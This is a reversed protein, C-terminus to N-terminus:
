YAAGISDLSTSHQLIKFQTILDEFVSDSFRHWLSDRDSGRTICKMTFEVTRELNLRLQHRFGAPCRSLLELCRCILHNWKEPFILFKFSVECQAIENDHHPFALDIGGSHIDLRQGIVDGAM